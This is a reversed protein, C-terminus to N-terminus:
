GAKFLREYEDPLGSRVENWAEGGVARELSEFVAQVHLRASSVDLSAGQEREAERVWDVFEDPSFGAAEDGESEVATALNAPLEDALADTGSGLREGLVGLTAEAAAVAEERSDLDARSEVDSFFQEDDMDGDGGAHEKRM